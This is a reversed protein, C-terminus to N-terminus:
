KITTFYSINGDKDVQLVLKQEGKKLEVFYSDKDKFPNNHLMMETENTENDDFEVIDVVTYDKYKKIINQQGKYPLEDFSKAETTGVLAADSDYFAKLTKGDENVFAVEDFPNVRKWVQEKIVGFDKEFQIKSADSVEQNALERLEKKDEKRDHKLVAERRDIREIDKALLTKQVQSNAGTAYMFAVSTLILLKKMDRNKLNSNKLNRLCLEWLILVPNNVAM